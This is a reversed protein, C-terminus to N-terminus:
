EKSFLSNDNLYDLIEKENSVNITPFQHRFFTEQRKVYHRTDIKIQEITTELTKEKHIYPILEKVGIAQFAPKDEGYKKILPLTEELLGKEFMKDIREEIIKYLTERDKSLAFFVTPYIPEHNQKALLSTKSEKAALCIAIDRLVRRRNQFPIKKAEDPDLNELIAHLEENSKNEYESLDIMSTDITLDYDYLASRIYLGSGGVLIPTKGKKLLNEIVERADHQYSSIDYGETLPIFDYLHHPVEKKDKESPAATAIKLEKYVQFADANVIEGNLKKALSIALASKGVGTPGTLVIIM